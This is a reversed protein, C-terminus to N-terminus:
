WFHNDNSAFNITRGSVNCNNTYNINVGNYNHVINIGFIQCILMLFPDAVSCDYGGNIKNIDYEKIWTYNEEMLKDSLEEGNWRIDNTKINNEKLLTIFKVIDVMIFSSEKPALYENIDSLTIKATIAQWYCTM